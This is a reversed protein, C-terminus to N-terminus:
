SASRNLLGQFSLYLDKNDQGFIEEAKKLTEERGQRHANLEKINALFASFQEYSLRSRAQRFFEKGDIRPTRAPIARGSPPSSPASSQQSPPYWSSFNSRGEYHSKTPSTSGSAVKPSGAGSLARPSAGTSVVKPTGTPTLRPTIYPTISFRQGLQRSADQVSNGMDTSPVRQLQMTSSYSDSEEDKVSTAVSSKAVSQDCTGIDVTEAQSTSDDSLSQMLQRKFTELKALDRNLKKTTLTLTDRENSLKINEDLATRLRTNSEQLIQDMQALKEQLEFVMRDKEALKQKLRGAESELKSVRSAIAMSTIKRALDLQDYPDTPIVSLIEDPLHFDAGNLSSYISNHTM